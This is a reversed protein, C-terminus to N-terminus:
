VHARGIEFFEPTLSPAARGTGSNYLETSGTGPSATSTYVGPGSAGAAANTSAPGGGPPGGSFGSGSPSTSGSCSFIDMLGQGGQGGGNSMYVDFVRAQAPNWDANGM